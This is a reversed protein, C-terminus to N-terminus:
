LTIVWNENEDKGARWRKGGFAMALPMAADDSSLRMVDRRLNDLAAGLHFPQAVQKRPLEAGQQAKNERRKRHLRQHRRAHHNRRDGVVCRL